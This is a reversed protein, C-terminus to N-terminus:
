HITSLFKTRTEYHIPLQFHTLFVMALTPFNSFTSCPLEVYWKVITRTLTCQFFRLNISDDNLNNSSCQLHFTVIHTSLDERPKGDIKPINSSLVTLIVLWRAQHNKPGNTLRTLDMLNITELILSKTQSLPMPNRFSVQMIGPPISGCMNYMSSPAEPQYFTNGLISPGRPTANNWPSINRPPIAKCWSPNPFSTTNM